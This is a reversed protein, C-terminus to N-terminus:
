LLLLLTLVLIECGSLRPGGWWRLRLPTRGDSLDRGERNEEREKCNSFINDVLPVCGSPAGEMAETDTGACTAHSDITDNNAWSHVASGAIYWGWCSHSVNNSIARQTTDDPANGKSFQHKHALIGSLLSHSVSRRPVNAHSLCLRRSLVDLSESRVFISSSPQIHQSLIPRLGQVTPTM